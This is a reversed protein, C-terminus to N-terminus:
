PLYFRNAKNWKHIICLVCNEQKDNQVIHEFAWTSSSKIEQNYIFM